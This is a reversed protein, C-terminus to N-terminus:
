IIQGTPIADYFACIVPIFFYYWWNFWWWWWCCCCCHSLTIRLHLVALVLEVLKQDECSIDRLYRKFSDKFKKECRRPRGLPRKGLLHRWWFETDMESWGKGVRMVRGMTNKETKSALRRLHVASGMFKRTTSNGATRNANDHIRGPDTNRVWYKTKPFLNRAHLVGCMVGMCCM